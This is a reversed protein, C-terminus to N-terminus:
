ERIQVSEANLEDGVKEEGALSKLRAEKSEFDSSEIAESAGDTGAPDDFM